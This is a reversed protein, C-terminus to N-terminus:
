LDRLALSNLMKINFEKFFSEGRMIRNVTAVKPENYMELVYSLLGSYIGAVYGAVFTGTHQSQTLAEFFAIKLGFVPSMRLSRRFGQYLM